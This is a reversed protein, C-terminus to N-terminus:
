DKVLKTQKSLKKSKLNTFGTSNYKFEQEIYQGQMRVGYTADLKILERSESDIKEQVQASEISNDGATKTTAFAMSNILEDRTLSEM